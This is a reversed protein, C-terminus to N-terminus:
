FQHRAFAATGPVQVFELVTDAARQARSRSEAHKFVTQALLESVNISIGVYFNRSRNGTGNPRNDTYGRAGYGVALEFYRLLSHNRLAPVGSAKAVVLYTQGPYDGFPDIKRHQEYSPQYLLRLDLLRDLEPNKELLLAAGVGIANMVADERSFRWRNSFGDIVEVATFTGLTLWAALTLSADPTNGAWEFARAFLRTGAYNAYLHGLKDAGGAYTNQGFWGENVSRFSGSFGDRWWNNRGYLGVGLANAAIIGMTRQRVQRADPHEQRHAGGNLWDPDVSTTVPAATEQLISELTAPKGPLEQAHALPSWLTAGFVLIAWGFSARRITASGAQSHIFYSPM